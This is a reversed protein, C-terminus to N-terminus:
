DPIEWFMWRHRKRECWRALERAPKGMSWRLIPAAKVVVRSGAPGSVIVGAVFHPAEIRIMYRRGMESM